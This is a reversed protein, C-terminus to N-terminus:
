GDWERREEWTRGAEVNALDIRACLNDSPDLWLMRRFSPAAEDLKGLRWRCLGAGHLCRLFPRNGILRWPLVGEFDAGLTLDGVGAGVLSHRLAQEPWGGIELDGLYAHAVLCRLDRALLDMLLDSAAGRHGASSLEDAEILLDSDPDHRDAGPIVQEM